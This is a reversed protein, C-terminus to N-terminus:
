ITHKKCVAFTNNVFAQKDIFLAQNPYGTYNSFDEFFPLLLPEDELMNKSKQAQNQQAEYIKVIQPNTRLGTLFEQAQVSGVAILLFLLLILRNTKCRFFNSYTNM